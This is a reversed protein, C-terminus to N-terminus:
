LVRRVCQLGSLERFCLKQLIIDGYSVQEQTKQDSLPHSCMSGGGSGVPMETNKRLPLPYIYVGSDM